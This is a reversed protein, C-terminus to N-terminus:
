RRQENLSWDYDTYRIRFGGKSLAAASAKPWYPKLARLVSDTDRGFDDGYWKFIPSLHLTGTVEDLRNKEPSALFKRAQDALQEDLREEIYAEARLPPCGRAACVLAFHIRPERFQPRIMRHELQDLTHVAGFLKVVPREWPSSFLGGLDKISKVPYHDVILRVTAANYANCLFALRQRETWRAFEAQPVEALTVLYANLKAPQAKLASYDVLGDKVQHALVDTWRRHLHDFEAATATGTLCLCLWVSWRGRWRTPDPWNM